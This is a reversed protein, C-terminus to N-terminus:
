SRSEKAHIAANIQQQKDRRERRVRAEAQEEKWERRCLNRYIAWGRGQRLHRTRSM